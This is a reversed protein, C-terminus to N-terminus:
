QGRFFEKSHLIEAMKRPDFIVWDKQNILGIYGNSGNPYVSLIYSREAIDSITLTEFPKLLLLSDPSSDKTLYQDVTLLSVADLFNNLKATDVQEVGAMNVRFDKMQMAFNGAENGPFEATLQQFNEWNFDFVRTTRWGGIPNEFIGSVYVRYGPISMIYVKGEDPLAFYSQTKHENGGAWFEAVVNGAVGMSVKVGTRQLVQFVSDNMATSMARRPEAAMVTAFLLDIMESNANYAGNVMWRGGDTTLSITDHTTSLVVQDVTKLDFKKFHDKEVIGSVDRTNFWAVGAIALILIILLVLRQKNKKEQMM